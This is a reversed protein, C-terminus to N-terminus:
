FKICFFLNMFDKRGPNLDTTTPSAICQEYPTTSPCPQYFVELLQLRKLSIQPSSQMCMRALVHSSEKFLLRFVNPGKKPKLKASAAQPPGLRM